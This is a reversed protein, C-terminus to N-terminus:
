KGPGIRTPDVPPRRGQHNKLWEGVAAAGDGNKGKVKRDHQGVPRGPATPPPTPPPTTGGAPAGFLEPLMARTHAVAAAMRAAPDDEESAQLAPLAIAMAADLRAPNLAPEAEPDGGPSLLAQSLEFRAREAQAAAVAQAAEAARAEAEAIKREAESMQAQDAERKATVVSKLEDVSALGLEELLGATAQKTYRRQLKQDLADVDAQTYTKGGSGDGSDAAAPPPNPAPPPTSPTPTPPPPTTGGSGAGADANWLQVPLRMFRNHSPLFM